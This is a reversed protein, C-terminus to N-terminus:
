SIDRRMADAPRLAQAIRNARSSVPANLQTQALAPFTIRASPLSTQPRRESAETSDRLELFLPRHSGDVRGSELEREGSCWWHQQERRPRFGRSGDDLAGWGRQAVSRGQRRGYRPRRRSSRAAPVLARRGFRMERCLRGAVGRQLAQSVCQVWIRASRPRAAAGVMLQFFVASSM